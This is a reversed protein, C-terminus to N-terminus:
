RVLHQRELERLRWALSVRIIPDRSTSYPCHVYWSYVQVTHCLAQIYLTHTGPVVPEVMVLCRTIISHSLQIKDHSFAVQTKDNRELLTSPTRYLYRTSYNSVITTYQLSSTSYPCHVYWSYVQVTTGTHVIYTSSTSGNGPM